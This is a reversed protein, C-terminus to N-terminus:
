IRGLVPNFTPELEPNQEWEVRPVMSTITSLVLQEHTDTQVLVWDERWREWKDPSLAPIYRSPGKTQHQFYYGGIRPPHRSVDRLVHFRRFLRVLLRVGMFM